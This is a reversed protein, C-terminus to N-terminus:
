RLVVKLVPVRATSRRRHRRISGRLISRGLHHSILYPRRQDSDLSRGVFRVLRDMDGDADGLISTLQGGSDGLGV